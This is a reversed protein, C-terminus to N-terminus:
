CLDSAVTAARLLSWLWWDFLHIMQITRDSHFLATGRAQRLAQYSRLPTGDSICLPAGAEGCFDLARVTTNPEEM